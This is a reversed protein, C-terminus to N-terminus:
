GPKKSSRALSVPSARHSVLCARCSRVDPALQGDTSDAQPMPDAECRHALVAGRVAVGRRPVDLVVGIPREAQPEGQHLRGRDGALRPDGRVIQDQVFVGVECGPRHEGARDPLRTRHGADLQTVGAALRAPRSGPVTVPGDREVLTPPLGDAGGILREPGPLETGSRQRRGFCGLNGGLESAGRGQGYLGAEVEQLDVGSV